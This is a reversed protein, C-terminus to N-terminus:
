LAGSTLRSRLRELRGRVSGDILRDGMRVVVGGLLAPDVALARAVGLAGVLQELTPIQEGVRWEGTEIRRRFLTALQVYRAIGPRGLDLRANM